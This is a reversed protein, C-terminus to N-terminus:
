AIGSYVISINNLSTWVLFSCARCVYLGPHRRACIAWDVKMTIWLTDSSPRRLIQWSSSENTTALVLDSEHAVLSISTVHSDNWQLVLFTWSSCDTDIQQSGQVKEEYLGALVPLQEIESWRAFLSGHCSISRKRQEPWSCLAELVDLSKELFLCSGGPTDLMFDFVQERLEMPLDNQIRHLLSTLPSKDSVMNMIRPSLSHLAHILTRPTLPRRDVLAPEHAMAQACRLTWDDYELLKQGDLFQHLTALCSLHFPYALPATQCFRCQQMPCNEHSTKVVSPGTFREGSESVTRILITVVYSTCFLSVSGSM